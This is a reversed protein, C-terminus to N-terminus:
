RQVERWRERDRKTGRGRERDRVKWERIKRGLM